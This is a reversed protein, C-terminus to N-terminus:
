ETQCPVHQVSILPLGLDRIRILIGHLAAQDPVSGAILTEGNDCLTLTMGEFWANWHSELQGRVRIEYCEAGSTMMAIPYQWDM